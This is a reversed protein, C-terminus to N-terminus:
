VVTFTTKFPVQTYRLVTILIFVKLTGSSRGSVSFYNPGDAADPNVM